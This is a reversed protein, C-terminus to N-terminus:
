RARHLGDPQSRPTVLMSRLDSDQDNLGDLLADCIQRLQSIQTTTLRDFLRTRVEAVHGPAANVVTDHGQDTLVAFQGRGDSACKMRRVLGKRELSSVAHTMRSPSFRLISALESMRMASKPAESLVALIAYHSHPMGSDEQMQRDLVEDLLQWSLLFARWTEQEEDSLWKVGDAMM